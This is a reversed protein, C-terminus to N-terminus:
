SERKKLWPLSNRKMFRELAKRNPDSHEVERTYRVIIDKLDEYDLNKENRLWQARAMEYILWIHVAITEATVLISDDYVSGCFYTYTFYVLLHEFPIEWDLESNKKWVEFEELAELYKVAFTDASLEDVGDNDDGDGDCAAAAMVDEYLLGYSEVLWSPWDKHLSELTSLFAYQRKAWDYLYPKAQDFRKAAMRPGDESLMIETEDMFAISEGNELDRQLNLATGTFLVARQWVPLTRDQMMDLIDDRAWTLQNYLSDDFNDYSEEPEQPKDIEVFKLPETRALLMRTVEPCSVSLSIERVNEFEEVHRPFMRCTKCLAGPGCQLIMECLGDDRLHACRNDKKQFFIKQLPNISANLKLSYPGRYRRYKALAEDDIVIQWGACCTEECEDAICHFKPYDDPFVYLM